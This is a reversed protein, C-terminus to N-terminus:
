TSQSCIEQMVVEVIGISWEITRTQITGGCVGNMPLPRHVHGRPSIGLLGSWDEICSSPVLSCLSNSCLLPVSREGCIRHDSNLFCIVSMAFFAAFCCREFIVWLILDSSPSILLRSCGGSRSVLGFLRELMARSLCSSSWCVILM